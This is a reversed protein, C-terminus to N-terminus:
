KDAEFATSKSKEIRAKITGDKSMESATFKSKNVKTTGTNCDVGSATSKNEDMGSITIEGKSIEFASINALVE